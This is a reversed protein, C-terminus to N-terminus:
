DCEDRISEIDDSLQEWKAKIGKDCVTSAAGMSLVDSVIAIPSTAVDLGLRVFKKLLGM